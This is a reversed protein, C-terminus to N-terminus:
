LGIARSPCAKLCLNCGVCRNQEFHLLDDSGMELARPSCVSTCTGCHICKDEDIRISRLVFDVNIGLGELWIMAKTIQESEGDVELLLEGKMNYNISARLINIKLDFEKVLGYTAPYNVTEPGFKLLLKTKM